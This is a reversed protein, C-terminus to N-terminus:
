VMVLVGSNNGPVSSRSIKRVRWFSARCPQAM